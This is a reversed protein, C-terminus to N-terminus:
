IESFFGYGRESWVGNKLAIRYFSEGVARLWHLPLNRLDHKRLGAYKGPLLENLAANRFYGGEPLQGPLPSVVIVGILWAIRM